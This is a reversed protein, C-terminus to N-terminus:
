SANRSINEKDAHNDTVYGNCKVPTGPKQAVAPPLPSGPIGPTSSKKAKKLTTSLSVEISAM